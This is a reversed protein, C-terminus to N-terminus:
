EGAGITDLLPRGGLSTRFGFLVLAAIVILAAYGYPAYWASSQFTMPIANEFFISEVFFAVGLALLGFRKLVLFVLIWFLLLTIAFVWSGRLVNLTPIILVFVVGALRDSRLFLRLFFLSGLYVLSIAFNAAARIFFSAAFSGGGMLTDVLFLLPPATEIYGFWAPIIHPLGLVCAFAVGFGCGVLVDRGVLPDRWEGSLLRTWSTLIQPWRRRIFPELGIYLTWVLGGMVANFALFRFFLLLEGATSVHHAGLIWAGAGAILSLVALRAAGRRDGRGLRLNRRALFLAGGLVAFLLALLIGNAITQGTARAPAEM